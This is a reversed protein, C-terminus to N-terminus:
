IIEEQAQNEMLLSNSISCSSEIKAVLTMYSIFTQFTKIKYYDESNVVKLWNLFLKLSDLWLELEMNNKSQPFFIKMSSNIFYNLILICHVNSLYDVFLFNIPINYNTMLPLTIQAQNEMLLSNSISCSSEIKAVLTM